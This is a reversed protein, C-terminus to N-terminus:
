RATRGPRRIAAALALVGVAMMATSGPEPIPRQIPWNSMFHLGIEAAGWNSAYGSPSGEYHSTNFESVDADAFGLYLRTAGAPVQFTYHQFYDERFTYWCAMVCFPQNLGLTAGGASPPPTKGFPDDETTFVGFISFGGDQTSALGNLGPFNATYYNQGPGLWNPHSGYGWGSQSILLHTNDLGRVNVYVADTADDTASGSHGFIQYVSATAPVSIEIADLGYPYGWANPPDYAALAPIPSLAVFLAAAAARLSIQFM